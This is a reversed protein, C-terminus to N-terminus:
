GATEIANFNINEERATLAVDNDIALPRKSSLGAVAVSKGSRDESCRGGLWGVASCCIRGTGTCGTLAGM